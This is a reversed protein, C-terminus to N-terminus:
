GLDVGRRLNDRVLICPTRLDAHCEHFFQPSNEIAEAFCARLQHDLSLFDLSQSTANNLGTDEFLINREAEAAVAVSFDSNFEDLCKKQSTLWFKTFDTRQKSLIVSGGVVITKGNDLDTASLKLDLARDPSADIEAPYSCLVVDDPSGLLDQMAQLIDIDIPASADFYAGGYIHMLYAMLLESQSVPSLLWYDAHIPDSSLLFGDLNLPTLLIIQCGACVHRIKALNECCLALSVDSRLLAVFVVNSRLCYESASLLESCNKFKNLNLLDCHWLNNTTFNNKEILPYKNLGDNLLKNGRGRGGHHDKHYVIKQYDRLPHISDQWYILINNAELRGLVAASLNNELSNNLKIDFDDLKILSYGHCAVCYYLYIINEFCSWSLWGLIRDVDGWGIEELFPRVIKLDYVPLQSWWFYISRDIASCDIFNKTLFNQCRKNITNAFPWDSQCGYIEKRACVEICIEHIDSLDLLDIESDLALAYDYRELKTVYDLGYLKKFVAHAFRAIKHEVGPPLFILAADMFDVDLLQRFDQESSIVFFIDVFESNKIYTYLLQKVFDKKPPHIPIVLAVRKTRGEELGRQLMKWSKKLIVL